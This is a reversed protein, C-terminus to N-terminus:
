SPPPLPPQELENVVARADAMRGQRALALGLAALDKDRGQSGYIAGSKRLEAVADAHRGRALYALGLYYHPLPFGADMDITRTAQEIAEDYRRSLYLIWARVANIVLSLPDVRKGPCSVAPHRADQRSASRRADDIAPWQVV